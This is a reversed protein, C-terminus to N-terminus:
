KRNRFSTFRSIKKPAAAIRRWLRRIYRLQHFPADLVVSTGEGPVSEFSASGGLQSMRQTVSGVGLGDRRQEFDFGVGNDAITIKLREDDIDITVTISTAKSHRGANHLAEKFSLFVNRRWSLVITTDPLEKPSKFNVKCNSLLRNATIRLRGIFEELKSTPTRLLWLIDRMADSTELAVERMEELDPKLEGPIGERHNMTQCLLAIMGLNSGIDDHLDSAIQSRLQETQTTLQSGQRWNVWTLMGICAFVVAATGGGIQFWVRRVEADLAATLEFLNLELDRREEVKELWEPNEQLPSRSTFGDVLWEPDWSQEERKDDSKQVRQEAPDSATVATELAVNLDGSYVQLEALALYYPNIRSDLGTATLRVYRATVPESPFNKPSSDWRQDAGPNSFMERTEAPLVLPRDTWHQIEVNSFDCYPIADKLDPERSVEVRFSSPFGWGPIDPQDPPRAPVLRIEDILVDRGLDLQVWQSTKQKSSPKSLYGYRKISFSKGSVGMPLPLISVGDVLYERSWRTEAEVSGTSQVPRWAAVNRNGSLVILEGLAFFARGSATSQRTVTIRVYRGSLKLAPIQVPYRGPNPYDSSSHDAVLDSDKFEPDNSVQVRFRVPFGYGEVIENEPQVATPVLAIHSIPFDRGLDVQVWQVQNTGVFPSHYGAHIKSQTSYPPFFQLRQDHWDRDDDLQSVKESIMWPIGLFNDLLGAAIPVSVASTHVVPRHGPSDAECRTATSWSALVIAICLIFRFVNLRSSCRRGLRQSVLRLSQGLGLSGVPVHLEGLLQVLCLPISIRISSMTGGAEAPKYGNLPVDGLKSRYSLVFRKEMPTEAM